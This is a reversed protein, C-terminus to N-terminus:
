GEEGRGKEWSEYTGLKSLDQRERHGIYFLNIYTETEEKNYINQANRITPQSDETKHRLAVYSYM